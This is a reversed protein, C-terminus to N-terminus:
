PTEDEDEDDDVVFVDGDDDLSWARTGEKWRLSLEDDLPV